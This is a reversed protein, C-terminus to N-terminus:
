PRRGARPRGPYCRRRGPTHEPGPSSAAACSDLVELLAQRDVPKALMGDPGRVDAHSGMYSRGDDQLIQDSGTIVVLPLECWRPRPAPDRGPRPRVEGAAHRRGALRRTSPRSSASRRPRVPLRSSSAAMTELFSTLYDAVDPDTMSWSVRIPKV